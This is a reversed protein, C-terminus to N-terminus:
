WQHQPVENGAVIDQGLPHDQCSRRGDLIVLIRSYVLLSEQRDLAILELSFQHYVLQRREPKYPHCYLRYNNIKWMADFEDATSKRECLDLHFHSQPCKPLPQRERNVLVM